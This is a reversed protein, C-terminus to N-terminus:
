RARAGPTPAATRSAPGTGVTDGLARLAALSTEPFPAAPAIGRDISTTSATGTVSMRPANIADQLGRGHDIFNLAVNLVSNIVTAGGPSGGGSRTYGAFV